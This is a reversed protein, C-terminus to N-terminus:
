RRLMPSIAPTPPYKRDDPESFYLPTEIPKFIGNILHGTVIKKEEEEQQKDMAGGISSNSAFPFVPCLANTEFTPIRIIHILFSVCSFTGSAGLNLTIKPKFWAMNNTASTSPQTCRLLGSFFFTAATTQPTTPAVLFEYPNTASNLAWVDYSMNTIESYSSSLMNVANFDFTMTTINGTTPVTSGVGMNGFCLYTAPPLYVSGDTANIYTPNYSYELGGTPRGCNGPWVAGLLSQIPYLTNNTSNGFTQINTGSPSVAKFTCVFKSIDSSQPNSFEIVGNLYLEGYTTSSACNEGAAVSFVGASYLRLESNATSNVGGTVQGFSVLDTDCFLKAKNYIMRGRVKEAWATHKKYGEHSLYTVPNLVTGLPLVDQADPDPLFHL